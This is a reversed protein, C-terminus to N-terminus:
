FGNKNSNVQVDFMGKELCQVRLGAAPSKAATFVAASDMFKDGRRQLFPLSQQETLHKRYLEWSCYSKPNELLHPLAAEASHM